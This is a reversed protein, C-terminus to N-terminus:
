KLKPAWVTERLSLAPCRLNPVYVLLSLNYLASLVTRRLFRDFQVFTHAVMLNAISVNIVLM